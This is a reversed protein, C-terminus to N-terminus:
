IPPVRDGQWFTQPLTDRWGGPEGVTEIALGEIIIQYGYLGAGNHILDLRGHVIIKKTLVHFCTYFIIIVCIEIVLQYIKVTM